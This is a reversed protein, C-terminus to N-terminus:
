VTKLVKILRILVEQNFNNDLDIFINGIKLKIGSSLNPINIQVPSFREQQLQVVKLRSHDGPPIEPESSHIFKRRWYQFTRLNLGKQRCFESQTLDSQKWESLHIRWEKRSRRQNASLKRSVM